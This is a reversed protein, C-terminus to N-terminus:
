CGFPGTAVDALGLLIPPKFLSVSAVGCPCVRFIGICDTSGLLIGARMTCFLLQLASKVNAGHTM